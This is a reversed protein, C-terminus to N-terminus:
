NNLGPAGDRRWLRWTAGTVLFEYRVQASASGRRCRLGFGRSSPSDESQMATMSMSVQRLPTLYPSTAMHVFDGTGVIEFGSATYSFSTGPQSSSASWDDVHDRFNDSYVLRGLGPKLISAETLDRPSSVSSGARPRYSVYLVALACVAITVIVAVASVFILRAEM